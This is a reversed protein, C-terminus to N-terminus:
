GGGRRWVGWRSEEVARRRGLAGEDLGRAAVVALESTQAWTRSSLGSGFCPSSSWRRGSGKRRLRTGGLDWRPPPRHPAASSPKSRPPTRQQHISGGRATAVALLGLHSELAVQLRVLRGITRGEKERTLSLEGHGKRKKRNHTKKTRNSQSPAGIQHIQTKERHLTGPQSWCRPVRDIDRDKSKRKSTKQHFEKISKYTM